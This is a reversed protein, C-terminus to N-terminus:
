IEEKRARTLYVTGASDDFKLTIKIKKGNLVGQLDKVRHCLVDKKEPLSLSANRHKSRQTTSADYVAAIAKPTGFPCLAKLFKFTSGKDSGIKVEKGNTLLFGVGFESRIQEETRKSLSGKKSFVNRAYNLVREPYFSVDVSVWSVDYTERDTGYTTKLEINEIVGQRRLEELFAIKFTKSIEALRIPEPEGGGIFFELQIERTTLKNRYQDAVSDACSVIEDFIKQEAAKKIEYAEIAEQSGLSAVKQEANNTM